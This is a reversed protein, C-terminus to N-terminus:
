GAYGPDRNTGAYLLTATIVKGNKYGVLCDPAGSPLTTPTPCSPVPTWTGTGPNDPDFSPNERLVFKSLPVPLSAFSITVTAPLGFMPGAVYSVQTSTVGSVSPAVGANGWSCPLQLSSLATGFSLATAQTNTSDVPATAASGGGANCTGDAKVGDVIKFTASRPLPGNAQGGGGATSSGSDWAATASITVAGTTSGATFTVFRKVTQGPQVTGVRCTITSADTTSCDSSTVPDPTPASVGSPFTITITTQTAAGGGVNQFRALALGQKGTTLTSPFAFVGFSVDNTGARGLTALALSAVAFVAAGGVWFRVLGRM